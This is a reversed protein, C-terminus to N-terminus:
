NAETYFAYNSQNYNFLIDDVYIPNSFIANSPNNLNYFGNSSVKSFSIKIGIHFTLDIKKYPILIDAKFFSNNFRLTNNSISYSNEANTSFQSVFNQKERIFNVLNASLNLERGVTDLKQRYYFLIEKKKM